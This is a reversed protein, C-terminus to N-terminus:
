LRSRWMRRGEPRELLFFVQPLAKSEVFGGHSTACGPREVESCGPQKNATTGASKAQAWWCLGPVTCVSCQQWHAGHVASSWTQERCVGEM